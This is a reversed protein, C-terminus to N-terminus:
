TQAVPSVVQLSAIPASEALEAPRERHDLDAGTAAERRQEAVGSPQAEVSRDGGLGRGRGGV